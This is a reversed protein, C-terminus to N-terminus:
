PCPGNSAIGAGAYLACWPHEYTVGDCGCVPEHPTFGCPPPPVACEGAVGCGTAPGAEPYWCVTGDTCPPDCVVAACPGDFAKSARARRRECDSAYTMGDCGCVPEGGPPCLEPVLSCRDEGSACDGPLTECFQDAGCGATCGSPAGADLAGADLAGADLAGADLPSAGECGALLVVVMAVRGM